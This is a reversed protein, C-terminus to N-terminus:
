ERWDKRSYEIVEQETVLPKWNEDKLFQKKNKEGEPLHFNVKETASETAFWFLQEEEIYEQKDAYGTMRQEDWKESVCMQCVHTKKDVSVFGCVECTDYKMKMSYSQIPSSLAITALMGILLVFSKTVHTSNRVLRYVGLGLAAGVVIGIIMLATSQLTDEVLDSVILLIPVYFGTVYVLEWTGKKEFTEKLTM